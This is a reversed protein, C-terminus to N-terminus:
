CSQWISLYRPLSCPISPPFPLLFPPLSPLCFNGWLKWLKKPFCSHVHLGFVFMIRRGKVEKSAQPGFLYFQGTNGWLILYYFFAVFHIFMQTASSKKTKGVGNIQNIKCPGRTQSGSSWIVMLLIYLLQLYSWRLRSCCYFAVHTNM